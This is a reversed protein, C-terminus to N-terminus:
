CEQVVDKTQIKYYQGWTKDLWKVDRRYIIRKTSFNIFCYTDAPRELSYGAFM